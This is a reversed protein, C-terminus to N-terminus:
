AALFPVLAAALVAPSQVALFHGGDLVRFDRRQMAGTRADVIDPTGFPDYRGALVLAPAAIGALDGTLDANILMRYAAAYGQPDAGLWRAIARRKEDANAWLDEPFAKPLVAEAVARLGECDIRDALEGAGAKREPPIGLAPAILVLAKCRAPYRAAFRTAIAAGIAAGAVTVPGDIALAALLAAIDAALTDLDLSGNVKESLGAGRLDYRVTRIHAPLLAVLGDWSNLSGALEHILVLTEPGRGDVAYRLATGNLEAFDLM